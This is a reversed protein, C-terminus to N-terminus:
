APLEKRAGSDKAYDTKKRRREIRGMMEYLARAGAESSGNGLEAVHRAPIVFEGDALAAKQKGKRGNIVAPIDDSVGDGHGRLLKGGAAYELDAIGGSARRVTQTYNSLNFGTTPIMGRSMQRRQKKNLFPQVPSAPLASEKPLATAARAQPQQVQQQLGALYDTTASTDVPAQPQPTMLGKYYDYMDTSGGEAFPSFGTKGSKKTGYESDGGATGMNAYDFKKSWYGPEFTTTGTAPDINAPGSHYYYPKSGKPASGYSANDMASLAQMGTSAVGLKQGTTLGKWDGGPVGSWVEKIASPRQGLEAFGPKLEGYGAKLKDMFGTPAPGTPPTPMAISAPAGTLGQAQLTQVGNQMGANAMKEAIPTVAQQGASVASQGVSQVGANAANSAAAQGARQAAAQGVGKIGSALGAGGWGGLGGMLGGMLPDEGEIAAGGAGALAGAMIPALTGGSFFTAAGGAIMPLLSSLWGAEPLGTHPNVTLSGGTALALQQLGAVEKPTMHVLMSDEGRGLAALGKAIHKM